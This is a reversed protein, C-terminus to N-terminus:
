SCAGAVPQGTESYVSYPQKPERPAFSPGIREARYCTGFRNWVMIWSPVRQFESIDACATSESRAESHGLAKALAAVIFSNLSVGDRAAAQTAERHLRHGCRLLVRGSYEEPRVGPESIAHGSEIAAEFYARKADQIAGQLGEWTEHGAVLGPLEPFEAAWYGGDNYIEMRYPLLMYEEVDRLYEGAM